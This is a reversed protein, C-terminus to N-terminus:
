SSPSRLPNDIFIDTFQSFLGKFSGRNEETHLEVLVRDLWSKMVQKSSESEVNKIEKFTDPKHAVLICFELFDRAADNPVLTPVNAPHRRILGDLLYPRDISVFPFEVTEVLLNRGRAPQVRHEPVNTDQARLFTVQRVGTPQLAALIWNSIKAGTAGTQAEDVVVIKGNFPRDLPIHQRVFYECIFQQMNKPMGLEARTEGQTVLSTTGIPLDVGTWHTPRNHLRSLISVGTRLVSAGRLPFFVVKPDIELLKLWVENIGRIFGALQQM